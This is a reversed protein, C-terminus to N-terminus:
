ASPSVLDARSRLHQLDGSSSQNEGRGGGERRSGRDFGREAADREPYLSTGEVVTGEFICDGGDYRNSEASALYTTHVQFWFRRGGLEAFPPQSNRQVM